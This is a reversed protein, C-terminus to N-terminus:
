NSLKLIIEDVYFYRLYRIIINKIYQPNNYIYLQTHLIINVKLGVMKGYKWNIVYFQLIEMM